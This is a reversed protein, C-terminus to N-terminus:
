NSEDEEPGAGEEESEAAEQEEEDDPIQGYKIYDGKVFRLVSWGAIM